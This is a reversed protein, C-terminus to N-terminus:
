TWASWASRARTLSGPPDESSRRADGAAESRYEPGGRFKSFSLQPQRAHEAREMPEPRMPDGEVLNARLGPRKARAV